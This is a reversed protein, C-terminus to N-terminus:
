LKGKLFESLKKSVLAVSKNRNSDRYLLPRKIYYDTDHEDIIQIDSKYFTLKDLKVNGEKLIIEGRRDNLM